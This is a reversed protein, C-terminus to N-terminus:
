DKQEIAYLTSKNAIYLVNNAVIPTSYVSNDMNIEAIIKKEKGHKFITIDGDEDGIYVKDDVILPSGWAAAFMDHTWYVKPMITGDKHKETKKADLCHFLGSFDSIYLIDDKIAVTGCSRHVEEEFDDGWTKYHWIAASNPNAVEKEGEQMLELRRSADALVTQSLPEGAGDVLTSPSVDGRKTPDICWVHGEGEGHEPDQGVAVFVVGDYLVPTAIINNRTGRGGLIWKSGKPNCDFSWLLKPGGKGDGAPDFSYVWGNGGGFIAQPQGGLVGYTPSSWQGHLIQRGPSRDTWLLKGTNRNIAIFSPANPAPLNIHSEDLGNSTNVLLIDGAATVSCSCMNHQSVGLEGMMDYRWIVDAEFKDQVTEATFPGDNEGDRFGETDLCLVEGRSSVYWLREGDVFPSCCIGQLPWDHVRGTPLKDSSHQWLFAGTKDDFCILCGLDVESPYRKIYGAGNNTGVYVKGNAVVPNGYTQSGLPAKWKINKGSEINWASPINEGFPTNNRGTWGGWQPWDYKGVKYQSVGKLAEAVPDYAAQKNKAISVSTVLGAVLTLCVLSQLSRTM